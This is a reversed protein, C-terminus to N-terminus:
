FFITGTESTMLSTYFSILDKRAIEDQIQMSTLQNKASIQQM